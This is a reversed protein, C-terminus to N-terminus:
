DLDLPYRWTSPDANLAFAIRDEVGAQQVLVQFAKQAREVAGPDASRHAENVARYGAELEEASSM